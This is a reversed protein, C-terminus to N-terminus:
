YTTKGHISVLHIKMKRFDSFFAKCISCCYLKKGEHMSLVHGKLESENSFKDDCQDCYQSKKLVHFLNNKLLEKPMWNMIKESLDEKHVSVVHLKMKWSSDCFKHCISCRYIKKGEHVSLIHGKLERKNDFIAECQNCSQPKEVEHVLNMYQLQKYNQLNEKEHVSVLHTKIMSSCSFCARCISCRYVKKGNHVTLIHQKLERKNEFQGDCKGCSLSKGGEHFSRLHRKLHQKSSYNKNCILCKWMENGEVLQPVIQAKSFCIHGKLDIKNDFSKGCQDFTQSKELRSCLNMALLEKIKFNSINEKGHISVLHKKM